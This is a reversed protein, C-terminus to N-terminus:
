SLVTEVIITTVLYPNLNSAPRRDELYGCGENAVNLPIRISCGRNGIGYSFDHISSTEHIGTLRLENNKGYVKMHNKHNNKLKECAEYIYKIGDKERM